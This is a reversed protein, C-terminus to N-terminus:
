VEQLAILNADSQDILSAFYKIEALYEIPSPLDGADLVEGDIDSDSNWLWETNITMARLWYEDILQDGSQASESQQTFAGTRPTELCGILVFAALSFVGSKMYSMNLAKTINTVALIAEPKLKAKLKLRLITRKELFSVAVM